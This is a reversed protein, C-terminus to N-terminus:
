DWNQWSYKNTMILIKKMYKKKETNWMEYMKEKGYEKWIYLMSVHLWFVLKSEQWRAFAASACTM